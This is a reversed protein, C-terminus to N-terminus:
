ATLLSPVVGLIQATMHSRASRDLSAATPGTSSAIRYSGSFLEISAINESNSLLEICESRIFSACGAIGSTILCSELSSALMKRPIANAGFSKSSTSRNSSQSPKAIVDTSCLAIGTSLRIKGCFASMYRSRNSRSPRIRKSARLGISAIM